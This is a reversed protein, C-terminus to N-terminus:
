VSRSAPRITLVLCNGERGPVPRFLGKRAATKAPLAERNRMHRGERGSLCDMRFVTGSSGRGQTVVETLRSVREESIIIVTVTIPALAATVKSM